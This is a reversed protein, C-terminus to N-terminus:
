YEDDENGGLDTRLTSRRLPEGNRGLMTAVRRELESLATLMVFTDGEVRLAGQSSNALSISAKRIDDVKIGQFQPNRAITQAISQTTRQMDPLIGEQEKLAAIIALGLQHQDWTPDSLLAAIASAVESPAHHNTVIEYIQEANIHRREAVELVKALQNITWCSIRLRKARTATASGDDLIAPYSPAVLLCGDAEKDGVHEDLGAFDIASLSPVLKSSKAELTILRVKEPYTVFRAIGDPEGAGSLHKATFGLSRAAAVLALELDHEDNAADRLSQAVLYPSFPHDHALGVLLKNRTEFVEGIVQPSIYAERLQAELLAEATLMDELLIRTSPEDMYAAVFPHDSNIMFTSSEPDFKVMRDQLGSGSYNYEFQSRPQNYLRDIVGNIKQPEPTQLYFWSNDADAGHEAFGKALAGAIPEEILTPGLFRRQSEKKNKEAREQSELYKEFRQRAEQFIELILDEFRQKKASIGVGERPATIVEDLDNAEIDARFRNLTGFHLQTMGFFPEEENILRNRVKVFFGNSRLLDDSKGPLTRVTVRITGSVGETLTNSRIRDGDLAFADGTKKNLAFIREPSLESVKFVVADQFDDKSSKVEQANLTLTFDTGMPMATSLVWRLRGLKIQHAKPKLTEVLAITWTAKSFDEDTLGCSSIVKTVDPFKTFGNWDTITRVPIRVPKAEAGTPDPGFADFDLSASLIGEATKSIYTLRRAVTYTALKGIGFKGIQKRLSLKQIEETRKNSRGIHWLDTMGDATMGRGDDFIALFDSGTQGMDSSDPVYLKCTKADADYCNVVLEEVAKLPSQYLQDSLLHVLENSIQVKVEDVQPLGSLIDVVM